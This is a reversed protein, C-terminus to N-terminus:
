QAGLKITVPRVAGAHEIGLTMMTGPAHSIMLFWAGVPLVGDLSGGDISVLHDGIHIGTPAAPGAPDVRLVTIPLTMGQVRLGPESPTTGFTPRVSYLTVPPTGTAVVDVDTGGPSRSEGALDLDMCFVRVRGLPATVAFHGAADSFVQENRDGLGASMQGGMSLTAGCRMGVVPTTTGYEFITGEVHGVGRSKLAVHVTEGSKVDIAEGDTEAGARAEIAYHGPRLGPISFTNGDVVASAVIVRDQGIQTVVVEPVRTFGALTGDIAGPRTLKITVPDGGAVVEAVGDAGDAAHAHISYTGRALDRIEFAGSVDTMASPGESPGGGRGIAEVHVDSIPVGADDVVTGRISLRENKIALHVGTVAEHPPVHVAAFRDGNAPKFSQRTGPAPTVKASYDGGLLMPCDFKGDADTNSECADNAGNALEFVVHVGPVPHGLEDVVDGFIEGSGDLELDVVQDDGAALTVRKAPAFAKERVDWADISVIGTPLGTLVYAGTDDAQTAHEQDATEIRAGPVPKDHRTVHGHVSTTAVVELKVDDVQVRDITVLKPSRVEYPTAKFAVADMPVGDLVFTGDPQSTGSRSALGGATSATVVAGAVPNGDRLVVGRVRAVSSVVIRIDSSATAARAIALVPTTSAHHEAVAMVLYKGPALRAIRFAGQADSDASGGALRRGEEDISPRARVRAGAVPRGQSDVVTGALVAEPVLVYDRRLDGPMTLLGNQTSTREELTGYGDAEVRVLPADPPVCLSYQGHEDTEVGGLGGVSIRAHVIPGGSADSVSGFQRAHCDGLELRLREPHVTPDAAHVTVSGPSHGTSSASVIFVAAPQVGFDFAGDAGSQVEALQQPATDDAVLGLRVIAGAVPAGGALVHGAIQRDPAGAQAFWAAFGARPKGAMGAPAGNAVAAAAAPGSPARDRRAHVVVGILVLLIVLVVAAILKKMAIVGVTVSPSPPLAALPALAALWGKKPQDERARLAARLQDLAVKLRRRVTGDPIALRRAIEASSYGEVFHLLITTRYPEALALVEGAVIRQLEVREVLEAPTPVVRELEAAHERAERRMAGRWRTRAANTVVRALWPRLPRDEPPEHQAAIVLADQAVDEAAAPDRVLARALRRVWALETMLQEGREM